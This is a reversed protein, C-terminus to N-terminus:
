RPPLREATGEVHMGDEIRRCGAMVFLGGGLTQEDVSYRARTRMFSGPAAPAGLAGSTNM